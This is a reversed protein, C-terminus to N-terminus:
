AACAPPLTVDDQDAMTDSNARNVTSRMFQRCFESLKVFAARQEPSLEMPCTMALELLGMAEEETLKINREEQRNQM